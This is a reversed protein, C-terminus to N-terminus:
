MDMTEASDAAGCGCAPHSSISRRRLRGDRLGFELVGDETPARQAGDIHMLVQMCALSAALAALAVDCAEIARAAGVLQATVTPWAPDRDRRALELCRLCATVGPRVFPGILASTERVTALLQPRRRVSVLVEPRPTSGVPTIVEVDVIAPDDIDRRSTVGFTEAVASARTGSHALRLGSPHTDAPRAPGADVVIVSGVGAASLLGAVAAGVRGAGHVRVTAHRRRALVRGASGAGSHLLSLSLLDPALPTDAAPAANDLADASRLLNILETCRQPEIGVDAAAEVISTLDRTGDLLDILKADAPALGSLVVAHDPILGLQLTAADRWVQRLAPKVAPHVPQSM